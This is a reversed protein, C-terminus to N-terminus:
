SVPFCLLSYNSVSHRTSMQSKRLTYDDINLIHKVIKVKTGIVIKYCLKKILRAIIHGQIKASVVKPCWMQYKPPARSCLLPITGFINFHIKISLKHHKDHM